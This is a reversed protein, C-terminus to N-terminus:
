MLDLTLKIPIWNTIAPAGWYHYRDNKTIDPNVMFFDEPTLEVIESHHEIAVTEMSEIQHPNSLAIYFCTPADKYFFIFYLLQDKKFAERLKKINALDAYIKLYVGKDLLRYHTIM